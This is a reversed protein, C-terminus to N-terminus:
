SQDKHLTKHLENALQRDENIENEIGAGKSKNDFVKYVMSALEKIYGDYKQNNAVEFAKDKLVKESQAKRELDKSDSYAADHAFCAQDLENRYIYNTDVTQLFKQIREKHKAFPGCTSYTFGPQGLHMEPMFKNGALLFKNIVENM